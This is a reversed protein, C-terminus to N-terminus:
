YDKSLDIGITDNVINLEPDYIVINIGNKIKVLSKSDLIVQNTNTEKDHQLFFDHYENSIYYKNDEEDNSWVIEEGKKFYLGNARNDLIGCKEFFDKLEEDETKCDGNVSIISWYEPNNIYKSLSQLDNTRSLKSMEVYRNIYESQEEWSQYKEDGRRDSIQYNEKLFSGIYNSFVQSGEVTMHCIDHYHSKLDLGIKDLELNCDLFKVDYEAAIEKAKNYKGEEVEQLSYPAVIIVIPIGNDKALEITKRYYEEVKPLLETMYDVRSVDMIEIEQSSMFLNQGKWSKGYWNYEWNQSGYDDLFDGRGLWRYRQHYQMFELLFEFRRKPEVTAVINKIKNWNWKMGVTNKISLDDQDYDFYEFNHSVGYGELVILEPKQYKLAEKLNYYSNWMAQLGGGMNYSAIGYKEFLTGNNFNVFAHSSGVILVDVTNKDLEYFHRIQAVGDSVKYSFVKHVYFLALILVFQFFLVRVISRKM